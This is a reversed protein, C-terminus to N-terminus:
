RLVLNQFYKFHFKRFFIEHLVGCVASICRLESNSCKVLIKWEIEAKSLRPLGIVLSRGDERNIQLLFEHFSTCQSTEPRDKSKDRVKKISQLPSHVQRQFSSGCRSDFWVAISRSLSTESFAWPAVSPEQLSVFINRYFLWINSAKPQWAIIARWLVM